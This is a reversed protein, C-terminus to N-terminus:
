RGFADTFFARVEAISGERARADGGFHAGRHRCERVWATNAEPTALRAGTDLRRIVLTDLDYEAECTRIGAYRRDLTVPRDHDFGHHAGPYVVVRVPVGREALWAALRECPGPETMEDAGGLLMLMPAAALARAAHRFNCYPYFPVYAAFRHPATGLAAERFREFVANVSVEGGRSFGMVAVRAGDIRPHTSLLQLALYADLLHAVFHTAGASDAYVPPRLGRGTYSDVVFAAIGWSNLRRAWAHERDASIGGVGHALVVAPTKGGRELATTGPLSLVGSVVVPPGALYSRTLFPRQSAPTYSRFEIRGVAGDALTTRPEAQAASALACAVM